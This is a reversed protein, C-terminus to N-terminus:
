PSGPIPALVALRTGLVVGAEGRASDLWASTRAIDQLGSHLLALRAEPLRAFARKLQPTLSIEPVLVLAQLGRELLRRHPAPLGRDQGSGTVRPSFLASLQRVIRRRSGARANRRRRLIARSSARRPILRGRKQSAGEEAAGQRACARRCRAIV